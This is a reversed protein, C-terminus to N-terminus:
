AVHLVQENNAETEAVSIETSGVIDITLKIRRSTADKGHVALTAFYRNGVKLERHELMAGMGVGDQDSKIVVEWKTESGGFARHSFREAQIELFKFFRKETPALRFIGTPTEPNREDPLLLAGNNIPSSPGFSEIIIRCDEIHRHELNEVAIRCIPIKPYLGSRHRGDEFSGLDFNLDFTPLPPPCNAIQRLGELADARDRQTRWLHFPGSVALRCVFIVAWAVVTYVVTWGVIDYWTHPDSMPSGREALYAGVVGVGVIGAWNLASNISGRWAYAACGLLYNLIVKIM